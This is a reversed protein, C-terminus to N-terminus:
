GGHSDDKHSSDSRHFVLAMLAFGLGIGIIAVGTIFVWKSIPLDWAGSRATTSLGWWVAAGIILIVAIVSPLVGKM